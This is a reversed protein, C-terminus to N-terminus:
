QSLINIQVGTYTASFVGLLSCKTDSRNVPVNAKVQCSFFSAVVARENSGGILSSQSM